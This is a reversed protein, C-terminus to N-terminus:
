DHKQRFEHFEAKLEDIDRRMARRDTRQDGWAAGLAVLVLVQSWSFNVDGVGVGQQGAVAATVISMSFAFVAVFWLLRSM